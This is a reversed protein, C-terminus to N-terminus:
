YSINKIQIANKLTKILIICIVRTNLFLKLIMAINKKLIKVYKDKAENLDKAYLCIEDVYRQQNILNFLSNTKGLGSCGTILMKYPHDTVEICNPNHEKTEEITDDDFNLM